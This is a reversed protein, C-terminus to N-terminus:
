APIRYGLGRVTEILTPSLKRRLRSVHVELTNSSSEGDFGNVLADLDGKSVIRGARLALSELGAWERATLPVREGALRVEHRALDLAPSLADLERTGRDVSAFSWPVGEGAPCRNGGAGHQM